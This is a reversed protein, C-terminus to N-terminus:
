FDVLSSGNYSSAPKAGFATQFFLLLPYLRQMKKYYPGDFQVAQIRFVPFRSRVSFEFQFVM